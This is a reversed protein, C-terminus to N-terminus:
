SERDATPARDFGAFVRRMAEVKAIYRRPDHSGCRQGPAFAFGRRVYGAGAGAGCLHIVTALRQRAALSAGGARYRQVLDAVQHDLLASTMEVAHSPIVRSYLANFWCSRGDRWPGDAVARGDHICWRRALEFTGDTIQYMGVASSAPRYIEFPDAVFAFRWYTRAIPNGTAEVQALAALLAPTMVPTAHRRFIPAYADWTARPTKHLVGSVPFFLETPKRVVQFIGNAAVALVAAVLAMVVFRLDGPVRLWRRLWTRPTRRARWWRDLGALWGRGGRQNRGSQRAGSRNTRARARNAKKHASAAEAPARAPARRGADRSPKRRASGREPTDSTRTGPPAATQPDASRPMLALSSDPTRVDRATEANRREAAVDIYATLPIGL